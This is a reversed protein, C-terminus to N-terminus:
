FGGGPAYCRFKLNEIKHQGGDYYWWIVPAGNRNPDHIVIEDPVPMWEGGTLDFRVWYHGNRIDEEVYSGDAESCCPVHNTPNQQRRFWERLEPSSQTWQGSDRAFSLDVTFLSLMFLIAGCIWAMRSHSECYAGRVREACCFSFDRSRPDGIPWRCARETLALLASGAGVFADDCSPVDETTLADDNLADDLLFESQPALLVPLATRMVPLATQMVPLATQMVHTAGRRSAGRKVERRTERRELGLRSVKGIVANRSCGLAAAVVAASDGDSWMRRLTDIHGDNWSVM